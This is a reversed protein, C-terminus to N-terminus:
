NAMFTHRNTLESRKCSILNVMYTIKIVLITCLSSKTVKSDATKMANLESLLHYALKNTIHISSDDELKCPTSHANSYLNTTLNLSFHLM